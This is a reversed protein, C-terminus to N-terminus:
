HLLSVKPDKSPQIKMGKLVIDQAILTNIKAEWKRHAAYKEPLIRECLFSVSQELHVVRGEKSVKREFHICGSNLSASEPLYSVVSHSPLKISVSWELRRPRGLLLPSTRSELVFLSGPTWDIPVTIRAKSGEQRAFDESAINMKLYAPQFLDTLDGQTYSKLEGKPMARSRVIRPLVRELHEPNRAAKRIAQGSKGQAWVELSGELHGDSFVEGFSTYGSWIKM